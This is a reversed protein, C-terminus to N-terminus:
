LVDESPWWYPACGILEYNQEDYAHSSLAPAFVALMLIIFIIIMSVVAARNRFLRRRADQWLSRGKVVAIPEPLGMVTNANAAVPQLDNHSM